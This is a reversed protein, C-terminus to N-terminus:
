PTPIKKIVESAAWGICAATNKGVPETLVQSKDLPYPLAHLTPLHINSGLIWLNHFNESLPKCREITQNLLPQNGVLTLFQKPRLPHSLPWFRSGIGGAMIM